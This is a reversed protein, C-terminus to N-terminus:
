TYEVDDYLQGMERSGRIFRQKIELFNLFKMFVVPSRRHAQVFPDSDREKPSKNM